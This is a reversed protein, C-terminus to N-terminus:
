GRTGRSPLEAAARIEADLSRTARALVAAARADQNWGVALAALGALLEASKPPLKARGLLSRGGECLRLLADYAAPAGTRGLLRIALVRLEVSWGRSGGMARTVLLPVAAPPCDQQAAALAIRAIQEDDEGLAALLAGERDAPIRLQLKLAQRRVRADAHKAFPAPSFGEPLQPVEELLGLLNRVVYWRSDGLRPLIVAGLGERLLALRDLLQRRTARVEAEALADLMPEAAPLGVRTLLRDLTAFDPAPASLTRRVTEPTAAREWIAAAVRSGPRAADLLDLLAVLRGEEVMGAVARWVLPGLHELELGMQLLREAEAAHMAEKPAAFIPAARAMRQLAAGYGDPNPDELTWGGLLQRVQDRLATDALPRVAPAGQEAHAALKALMRLLSHSITQHTTDAAAQVVDLVADVAMGDTADLVFRQRQAADGGMEVLRRLTEPRMERVLRSTRRRLEVAEAGGARKLEDAIQLLYGVIVQDYGAVTAHQDIAKAIVESKTSPSEDEGIEGALAARALGLWLQAARVGRAAGAFGGGDESGQAPPADDLLELREYTLAHLRVHPWARLREAPGLGLPQGSREAEVALTRLVDAVEPTALGREFTAAGLHHRHLRGALEALVPHKSDTAVGEIILQSRAVGLSLTPRDRLLETARRVVSAAAPELSPHGEPYMAHKHLAISLEILFEGL